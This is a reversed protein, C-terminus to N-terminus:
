PARQLTGPGKWVLPVTQQTDGQQYVLMVDKHTAGKRSRLQLSPSKGNAPLVGEFAVTFSRAPADYVLVLIRGGRYDDPVGALLPLLIISRTDDLPLPTVMEYHLYEGTRAPVSFQALLVHQKKNRDPNDDLRTPDRVTLSFARKVQSNGAAPPASIACFEDMSGPQLPYARCNQLPHEWFWNRTGQAELTAVVSFAAVALLPALRHRPAAIM